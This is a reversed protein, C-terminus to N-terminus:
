IFVITSVGGNTKWRRRNKSLFLDTRFQHSLNAKMFTLSCYVQLHFCRDGVGEGM